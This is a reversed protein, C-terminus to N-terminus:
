WTYTSPDWGAKLAKLSVYKKLDEQTYGYVKAMLNLSILVHTMEEFIYECDRNHLAGESSHVGKKAIASVLEGCEEMLSSEAYESYCPDHKVINDIHEEPIGFM